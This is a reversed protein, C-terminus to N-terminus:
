PPSTVRRPQQLQASLYLCFARRAPAPSEQLRPRPKLLWGAGGAQVSQGFYNDQGAQVIYDAFVTVTRCVDADLGADVLASDRSPNPTVVSFSGGGFGNFQSTIGRSQDMFEHQWSADLHPHLSLGHEDFDYSVRGGLRSRLSDSQQENVALDAISGTENFGNVTLHTYQLGALPGFTLGHCHFDYGGDLDAVGEDGEPAGHATQGLFGIVRNETYANHVYDGVLNAYWGHDAYSAYLGPSYSDVAATSGDNDLTADTHAYGATLGVLFNPTVRYDTGLVVSETNDDFHPVDTQSFGQALIVNGRVFFNWPDTYAPEQMSKMDKSDKMAVGGLAPEAIDSMVSGVPAPSWALMRSHIMSLAPDYSPDNVTLGSSDIQGNGGLFTGNAAIRQGALYNDMADTEFSANNFATVSTFYGFREPSLSDLAGGLGSPAVAYLANTLTALNGTINMTELGDINAGVATQNPTLGSTLGLMQRFVLTVDTPTYILAEFTGTPPTFNNLGQVSNFMGTIGGSSNHVLDYTTGGAPTFTLNNPDALNVTGGLSATAGHVMLVDSDNTTSGYVDLRLTGATQSYTGGTNITFPTGGDISGLVGGNVTVNANGLATASGANLRGASITLPGSFTNAGSLTLRDSGVKTLGLTGSGGDEVTGHFNTDTHNDGATLVANTAGGNELTGGSGGDDLEGITNNYGMLALTGGTNIKYHSNADFAHTAGAAITGGNIVTNGYYTSTGSLTLTSIGDKELIGGNGLSGDTIAGAYSTSTSGNVTLRGNNGITVTGSSTGALSAVNENLGGLSFSGNNTLNSTTALQTGKQDTVQSGSDVQLNGTVATGNVNLALAADDTVVMGGTYTSSTGGSIQFQSPSGASGAGALTLNGTGTIGGNFQAINTSGTQSNTITINASEEDLAGNVKLTGVPAVIFNNYADISNSITRSQDTALTPNFNYPLNNIVLAATGLANNNAITLTGRNLVVSNTMSSNNGSLVVYAGSSASGVQIATTGAGAGSINGSFTIVGSGLSNPQLTNGNLAINSSINLAAGNTVVYTAGNALTLTNISVTQGASSTNALFVGSGVIFGTVGAIGPGITVASGGVNFSQTTGANPDDFVISNITTVKNDNTPNLQNAQVTGFTLNSGNTPAM